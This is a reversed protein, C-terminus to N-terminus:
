AAKSQRKQALFAEIQDLERQRAGPESPAAQLRWPLDQRIMLGEFRTRVAFVALGLATLESAIEAEGIADRQRRRELERARAEIADLEGLVDLELKRTARGGGKSRLFRSRNRMEAAIRRPQVPPPNLSAALAAMETRERRQALMDVTAAGAAPVDQGPEAKAGSRELGLEKETNSAM